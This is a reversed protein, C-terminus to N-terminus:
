TTIKGGDELRRRTRTVGAKPVLPTAVGRNKYTKNDKTKAKRTSNKNAMEIDM